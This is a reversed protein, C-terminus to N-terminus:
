NKRVILGLKNGFSGSKDQDLLKYDLTYTGDEPIPIEAFKVEFSWSIDQRYEPKKDKEQEDSSDFFSNNEVKVKKSEYDSNIIHDQLGFVQVAERSILKGKKTLVYKLSTDPMVDSDTEALAWLSIIDGKKLQLSDVTNILQPDIKEVKYLKTGVPNCSQLALILFVVVPYIHFKM